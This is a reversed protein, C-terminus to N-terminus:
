VNQNYHTGTHNEKTKTLNKSIRSNIQRLKIKKLKSLKYTCQKEQIQTIKDMIDKLLSKKGKEREEGKPIGMIHM